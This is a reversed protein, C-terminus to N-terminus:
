TMVTLPARNRRRIRLIMMRKRRWWKPRRKRPQHTPQITRQIATVLVVLVLVKMKKERKRSRLSKVRPSSSTGTRGMEMGSSTCRGGGSPSTTSSSRGMRWAPPAPGTASRAGACTCGISAPTPCGSRRPTPTTTRRGGRTCGSGITPGRATIKSPSASPVALRTRAPTPWSRSARATSRTARSPTTTTTPPAPEQNRSGGRRPSMTTMTTMPRTTTSHRRSRRRTAAARSRTPTGTGARLPPM